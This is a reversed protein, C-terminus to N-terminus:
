LTEWENFERQTKSHNNTKGRKNKRRNAEYDDYYAGASRKDKNRNKKSKGMANVLKSIQTAVM